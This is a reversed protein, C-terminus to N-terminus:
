KAPAAPKAEGEPTQRIGQSLRLYQATTESIKGWRQSEEDTLKDAPNMQLVPILYAGENAPILIDIRGSVKNLRYLVNSVTALQFNEGSASDAPRASLGQGILAAAIIIAVAFIGRNIVEKTDIM